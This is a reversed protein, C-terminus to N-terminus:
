LFYERTKLADPFILKVAQYENESFCNSADNTDDLSSESKENEDNSDIEEKCVNIQHM